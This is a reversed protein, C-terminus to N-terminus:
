KYTQSLKRRERFLWSYPVRLLQMPDFPKRLWVSIIRLWRKSGVAFQTGSGQALMRRCMAQVWHLSHIASFLHSERKAWLRTLFLCEGLLNMWRSNLPTSGAARAKTPRRATKPPGIRRGHSSVASLDLREKAKFWDALAPFSNPAKGMALEVTTEADLVSPALENARSLLDEAVVM